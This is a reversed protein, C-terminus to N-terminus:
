AVMLSRGTKVVVLACPGGGVFSEKNLRTLVGTEGDVAYGTVLGNGLESVAYLFKRNPHITLFSPNAVEAALGMPSFEGSAPDFRFSYIGKSKERTYTGVYAFYKTAALASPALAIGLLMAASIYRDLKM